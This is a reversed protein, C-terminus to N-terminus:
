VANNLLSSKAFLKSRSVAPRSGLVSSFSCVFLWIWMWHNVKILDLYRGTIPLHQMQQHLSATVFFDRALQVDARAGDFLM